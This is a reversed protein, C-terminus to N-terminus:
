NVTAQGTSRRTQLITRSVDLIRALDNRASPIAKRYTAFGHITGDCEIYSVDCGSRALKGAFARGEDRLPDLAATALVTPSLGAVDGKLPSHRWSEPDGKYHQEFLTMDARELGFGDAFADRSPYPSLTDVGPYLLIQMIVPLYAPGDRLALATVAALNGGASDGCLILGDFQRDFETNNEAIWRAAAEADDPAAPWACEPALRYEVSIVPLDLQRSIEAALSAHTAINGVCFGGGHYFVVVPGAEHRERSDFLRLTIPGSPGPMEVIRDVAIDGIPLDAAAMMEPPLTRIMALMEATFAPRPQAKMQELYVAVDPRVFPQKSM